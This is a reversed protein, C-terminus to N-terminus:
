ATKEVAEVIARQAIRSIRVIVAIGAAIGGLVIVDGLGFGRGLHTGLHASRFLM